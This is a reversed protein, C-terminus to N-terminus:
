CNVGCIDVASRACSRRLSSGKGGTTSGERRYRSVAEPKTTSADSYRNATTNSNRSGGGKSLWLRWEASINHILNSLSRQGRRRRETVRVLGLSKAIRLASQVVTRCTGAIAAITDLHLSCVGHRAIEGGIVKLCALESTTFKAALAPPLPGSAAM